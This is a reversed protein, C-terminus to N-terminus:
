TEYRRENIGGIHIKDCYGANRCYVHSIDLRSMTKIGSNHNESKNNTLPFVTDTIAGLM